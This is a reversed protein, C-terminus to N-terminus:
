YGVMRRVRLDSATMYEADPSVYYSRGLKKPAPHILGNKVWRLVTNKAPAYEGFTQEVWVSLPILKPKSKSTPASQPPSPKKAINDLAEKIQREDRKMQRVVREALPRKREEREEELWRLYAPINLEFEGEGIRRFHHDRQIRGNRMQSIIRAVNRKLLTAAEELPVWQEESPKSM